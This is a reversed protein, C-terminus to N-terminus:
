MCVYTYIFCTPIYHRRNKYTTHVARVDCGQIGFGDDEDASVLCSSPVLTGTPSSKVFRCVIKPQAGDIYRLDNCAGVDLSLPVIVDQIEKKPTWRHFVFFRLFFHFHDFVSM